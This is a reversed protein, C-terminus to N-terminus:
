KQPFSPVLKKRPLHSFEIKKLKLLKTREERDTLLWLQTLVLFVIISLILIPRGVSRIGEASMQAAGGDCGCLKSM